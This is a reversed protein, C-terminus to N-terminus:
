ETLREDVVSHPDLFQEDSVLMIDLGKATQLTIIHRGIHLPHRSPAGPPPQFLPTPDPLFSRDPQFAIRNESMFDIRRRM